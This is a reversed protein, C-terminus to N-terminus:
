THDDSDWLAPLPLKRHLLPSSIHQVEGLLRGPRASDAQLRGGRFNFLQHAM